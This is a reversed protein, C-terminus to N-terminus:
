RDVYPNELIGADIEAQLAIEHAELFTKGKIMEQFETMEHLTTSDFFEQSVKQGKERLDCDCDEYHHTDIWIEDLPIFEHVCGHGGHGFLISLNNRIWEGDVAFVKLGNQEKKFAKWHGSLIFNPDKNKSRHQISKEIDELLLPERDEIAAIDRATNKKRDAVAANGVNIKRRM